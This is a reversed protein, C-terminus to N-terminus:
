QQGQLLHPVFYLVVTNGDTPKRFTGLAYTFQFSEVGYFLTNHGMQVELINRVERAKRLQDTGQFSLTLLHFNV